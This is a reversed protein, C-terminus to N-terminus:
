MRLPRGISSWSGFCRAKNRFRIPPRMPFIMSPLITRSYPAAAAEMRVRETVGACRMKELSAGVDGVHLLDKAMGLDGGGGLVDLDVDAVQLLDDLFLM